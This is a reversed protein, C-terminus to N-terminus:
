VVSKRDEYDLRMGPIVPWSKGLLYGSWSRVWFGFNLFMSDQLMYEIDQMILVMSLNVCSSCECTDWQRDIVIVTCLLEVLAVVRNGSHHLWIRWLIAAFIKERKSESFCCRM